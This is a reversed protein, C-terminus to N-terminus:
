MDHSSTQRHQLSRAAYLLQQGGPRHAIHRRRNRKLGGGGWREVSCKVHRGEM